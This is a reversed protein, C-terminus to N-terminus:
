VNDEGTQLINGDAAVATAATFARNKKIAHYLSRTDSDPEKQIISIILIEVMSLTLVALLFVAYNEMAGFSIAFPVGALLGGLIKTSIAHIFYLEHQRILTVLASIAGIGLAGALWLTLRKTLIRMSFVIKVVSAVLLVDAVTDLMAGKRSCSGTKRAVTGDVMDTLEAIVFIILFPITIEKFFILLILALIIRTTTLANALNKM